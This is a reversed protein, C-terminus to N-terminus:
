SFQSKIEPKNLTMLTWIGIPLGILCCCGACPLMVIIASAMSLGFNKLQRMQLAGYIMVGDLALNIINGFRGMGQTKALIEALKPDQMLQPPITSGGAVLGYLAFLVGLGGMVLIAISQVNLAEKGDVGGGGGGFQQPQGTPNM